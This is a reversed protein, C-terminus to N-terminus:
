KPQQQLVLEVENFENDNSSKSRTLKIFDVNRLSYFGAVALITMDMTRTQNNSKDDSFRLPERDM